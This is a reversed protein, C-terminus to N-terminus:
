INSCTLVVRYRPQHKRLREIAQNVNNITLSEVQAAIGHRASFALTKAVNQTNGINVANISKSGIIMEFLPLPMDAKPMGAFCLTAEARLLPTFVKLDIATDATSLLLDFSDNYPKLRQTDSCDVFAQAGFQLCDEKKCSNTDFAIVNAGMKSAFQIALHGLGGIGIIGIDMGAEVKNLSLAHFVTAGACLLPAATASKLEDPILCVHDQKVQINDAFGGQHHIGIADLEPCYHTQQQNCYHCHGCSNQQWCVGVRQGVKFNTVKSGIETVTGIIEHGPVMPYHADAWTNDIIDLDSHCVGCHTIAIRIDDAALEPLTYEWTELKTNPKMAAFGNAIDTKM